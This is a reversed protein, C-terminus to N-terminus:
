VVVTQPTRGANRLEDLDVGAERAEGGLQRQEHEVVVAKALKLFVPDIM